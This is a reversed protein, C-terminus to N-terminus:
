LMVKGCASVVMGAYAARMHFLTWMFLERGILPTQCLAEFGPDCVSRRGEYAHPCARRIEVDWDLWKQSRATYAYPLHCSGLIPTPQQRQRFPSIAMVFPNPRHLLWRLM